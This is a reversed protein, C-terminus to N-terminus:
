RSKKRKRRKKTKVKGKRSITPGMIFPVRTDGSAYDGFGTIVEGVEMSESVPQIPIIQSPFYAVQGDGSVWEPTGTALYETRVVGRTAAKSLVRILKRYKREGEPTFFFLADRHVGSPQQLGYSLEEILFQADDDNLLDMNYASRNLLGVGRRNTYRIVKKSQTNEIIRQFFKDFNKTM